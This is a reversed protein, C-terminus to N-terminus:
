TAHHSEASDITEYPQLVSLERGLAEVDVHKETIVNHQCDVKYYHGLESYYRSSPPCRKVMELEHRLKRNIRALLAGETIRRKTNM